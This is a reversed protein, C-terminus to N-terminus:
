ISDNNVKGLLLGQLLQGPVDAQGGGSLEEQGVHHVLLGPLLQVGPLGAQPVEVPQEETPLGAVLVSEGDLADLATVSDLSVLNPM